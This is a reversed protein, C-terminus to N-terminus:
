TLTFHSKPRCSKNCSTGLGRRNRTCKSYNKKRYMCKKKNLCEERFLYKMQM